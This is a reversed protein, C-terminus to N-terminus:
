SVATASHVVGKKKADSTVGGQPVPKPDPTM